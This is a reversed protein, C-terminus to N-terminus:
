LCSNGVTTVAKCDWLARAMGTDSDFVFQAKRAAVATQTMKLQRPAISDDTWFGVSCFARAACENKALAVIEAERGPTYDPVVLATFTPSLVYRASAQLPMVAPSPGSTALGAGPTSVSSCAAELSVLLVTSILAVFRAEVKTM